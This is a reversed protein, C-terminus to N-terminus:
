KIDLFMLPLGDLTKMTHGLLLVIVYDDPFITQMLTEEFGIALVKSDRHATKVSCRSHKDYGIYENTSYSHFFFLSVCIIFMQSAAPLSTRLFLPHTSMKIPFQKKSENCVFEIFLRRQEVGIHTYKWEWSTRETRFCGVLIFSLTWQLSGNKWKAQM